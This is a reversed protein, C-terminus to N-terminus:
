KLLLDVSAKLDDYSEEGQIPLKTGDKTVLITYPTGQAGVALGDNYDQAIQATYKGSNLCTNFDDVNLGIKQAIVPLGAPDFTDNSGTESYLESLYKWFADPGGLENACETAEAEHPARSHIAAIPFQRYVWAVQGSPYANMLKQLSSFYDKCFPCETDSYEVIVVQANPDGLIHDATTIPKMGNAQALINSSSTPLTTANHPAHSYALYLGFAMLIGAFVIAAPIYLKENM